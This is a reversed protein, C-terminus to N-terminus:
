SKMKFGDRDKLVQLIAFFLLGMTVQIIHEPCSDATGTFNAVMGELLIKM